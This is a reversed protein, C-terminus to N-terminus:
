FEIKKKINGNKQKKKKKKKKQTISAFTSISVVGLIGPRLQVGAGLWGLSIALLSSSIAASSILDGARGQSVM